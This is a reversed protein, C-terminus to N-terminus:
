LPRAVRRRGNPGTWPTPTFAVGLPFLAKM